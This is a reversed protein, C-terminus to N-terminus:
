FNENKEQCIDGCTAASGPLGKNRLQKSIKRASNGRKNKEKEVVTLSQQDVQSNSWKPVWRKRKELIKAKERM